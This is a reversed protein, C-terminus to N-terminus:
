GWVKRKSLVGTSKKTRESMILFSGVHGPVLSPKLSSRSEDCFQAETSILHATLKDFQQARLKPKRTGANQEWSWWRVYTVELFSFFLLEGTLSISCDSPASVNLLTSWISTRPM